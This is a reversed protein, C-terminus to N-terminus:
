RELKVLPRELKAADNPFTLPYKHNCIQVFRKKHLFQAIKDRTISM